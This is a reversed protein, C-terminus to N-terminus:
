CVSKHPSPRVDEAIVDKARKGLSSGSHAHHERWYTHLVSTGSSWFGRRSPWWGWSEACNCVRSPSFPTPYLWGPPRSVWHPKRGTSRRAKSGNGADRYEWTAFCCLGVGTHRRQVGLVLLLYNLLSRFSSGPLSCHRGGPFVICVVRPLTRLMFAWGPPLFSIPASKAM